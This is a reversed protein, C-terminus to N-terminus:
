FIWGERQVLALIDLYEIGRAICVDPIKPKHPSGPKEGTVVLCRGGTLALNRKEIIALAIVFPDADPNEKQEDILKPYETIIEKAVAVQEEDLVRFIQKRQNVWNFVEDDKQKLEDYVEHPPIIHKENVLSDLNGWLSPFNVIPYVEKADICSSTDVCYIIDMLLLRSHFKGRYCPKWNM